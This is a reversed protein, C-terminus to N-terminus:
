VRRQILFRSAESNINGYGSMPSNSRGIGFLTSGRENQLCAVWDRLASENGFLTAHAEHVFRVFADSAARELREQPVDDVAAIVHLAAVFQRAHASRGDPRREGGAM